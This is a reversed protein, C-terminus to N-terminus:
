LTSTSSMTSSIFVARLLASLTSRLCPWNAFIIPLLFGLADDALIHNGLCLIRTTPARAAQNGLLTNTSSTM